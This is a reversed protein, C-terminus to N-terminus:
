SIAHATIFTPPSRSAMFVDFGHGDKKCQETFDYLMARAHSGLWEYLERWTVKPSANPVDDDTSYTVLAEGTVNPRLARVKGYRDAFDQSSIYGRTFGLNFNPFLQGGLTLQFQVNYKATPSSSNRIRPQTRARQRM